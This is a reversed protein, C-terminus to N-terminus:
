KKHDYIKEIVFIPRGKVEAYIRAVYEGMVGISILQLGSAFLMTVMMSAYGPLEVGMFVTRQILYIGYSFSIMAIFVGLYMWIKLPASSFSFIGDLALHVLKAVGITSKGAARNPRIFEITETKFGPWAMIGKMMRNREPLSKIVEIVQRDMLRFDGVNEPINIDSVITMVKYFLKASTRKFWGEEDRRARKALVVQAGDQWREIMRKILQPPDQLDADLPIVADGRANLLGASLAAEKGFNRSLNIVRIQPLKKQWVLLHALTADKSGDNICDIEFNCRDCEEMVAILSSFLLDLNAVENYMPISLSILSKKM